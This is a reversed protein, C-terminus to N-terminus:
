TCFNVGTDRSGFHKLFFYLIFFKALANEKWQDRMKQKEFLKYCDCVSLCFSLVVFEQLGHVHVGLAVTLGSNQKIRGQPAHLPQGGAHGRPWAALGMCHWAAVPLGKGTKPQRKISTSTTLLVAAMPLCSPSGLM